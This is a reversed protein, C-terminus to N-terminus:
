RPPRAADAMSAFARTRAADLFELRTLRPAPGKAGQAPVDADMLAKMSNSLDLVVVLDIGKEDANEGRLVNQPRGLALVALIILGVGSGSEALKASLVAALGLIGAISIDFEGVVLPPVAALALLGLVSQSAVISKFNDLTPFTEPETLSFVVIFAILVAVAAYNTAISRWNFRRRGAEAM